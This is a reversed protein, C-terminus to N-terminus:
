EAAAQAEPSGNDKQIKRVLRQLEASTEEHREQSEGLEKLHQELEKDNAQAQRSEAGFLSAIFDRLRSMKTDRRKRKLRGSTATTDKSNDM